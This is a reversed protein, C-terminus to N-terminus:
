SLHNAKQAMSYNYIQSNLHRQYDFFRDADVSNYTLEVGLLDSSSIAAIAALTHIFLLYALCPIDSGDFTPLHTAGSRMSVHAM